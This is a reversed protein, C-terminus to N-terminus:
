AYGYKELIPALRANLEAITVAKLKEIHDGPTVKRVHRTADEVTPRADNNAVAREIAERAVTLSLYAVMDDAWALKDFIIDEYRYLRHGLGRLKGEVARYQGSVVAARALVFEDINMGMAERRRDEFTAALGGGVGGGPPKHSQAVSFYLSTLMDRPDRVLLVTRDAAYPPLALAGPLARFGAFAYGAPQFARNVEPPIDMPAVGITRLADPISVFALGAARAVPKMLHTLLTSGAKPLGILFVSRTAPDGPAAMTFACDFGKVTFAIKLDADSSAGVPHRPQIQTM